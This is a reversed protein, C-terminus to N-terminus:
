ATRVFGYQIGDISAAFSGPGGFAGQSCFTHQRALLGGVPAAGIAVLPISVRAFVFGGTRAGVCPVPEGNEGWLVGGLASM